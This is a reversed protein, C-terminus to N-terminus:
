LREVNTATIHFPHPGLATPNRAVGSLEHFFGHSLLGPVWNTRYNDM